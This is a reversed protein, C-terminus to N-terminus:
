WCSQVKGMMVDAVCCTGDDCQGVFDVTSIEPSFSFIHFDRGM